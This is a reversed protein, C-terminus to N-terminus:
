RRASAKRAGGARPRRHRDFWGIIREMRDIRRDPRGYNKLEHHEEPYLVYEVERGLVKLATFLQENDAPPCIRDEEAQLILLPTTIRAVNRLPSSHWLRLMGEDSLPDGLGHRRNYHVGFYSNAWTSVQNSVGNEAAGAAFRDTKGVLWQTLYGGYSLGMVYLRSPDALGRDVLADVTAIADEADPGGWRGELSRVWDAGFTASGRINPMVVRYGAACLATADMSGVGAWAGTPGGHFALVLPLRRRGAGSPSALWAQIPGAPGPLDLEEVGPMWSSRQWRSGERTVRRLTGRAIAYVESSRGEFGASMAITRGDASAALGAGDLVLAPDAMPEATGDLTVRYPLNRGRNGILVLLSRDDLWIPGIVDEAMVLDSWAWDGVPLDLSETLNRPAAGALDAVWLSPMVHNPPDAVDTGVFALRRGDPSFAPHEAEGALAVLERVRGGRAAVSFLRSRPDLNTDEGPDAAFAITRGDPSWTPGAVDFDGTTLQRPRAGPRVEVSWLHLRRVVHGSEDDRFDTRTMRRATPTRGRHERGVIFRPDGGQAVLALRRGDPSWRVSSVGHELSTLQWAEGGDLPLIWVQGVAQPDGVPSRVFAVQRGDPALDPSVDRVKGRTLQRPPGGRFPRAFLHSQYDDEVVRRLVYIISSGNSSLRYSELAIQARVLARPTVANM